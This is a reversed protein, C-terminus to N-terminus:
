LSLQDPLGLEEAIERWSQVILINGDLLDQQEPSLKGTGQPNKFEAALWRAKTWSPHRILTDAFGRHQRRGKINSSMVRVAYGLSRLKKVCKNQLDHETELNVLETRM